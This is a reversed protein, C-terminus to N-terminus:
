SLIYSKKIRCYKINYGQQRLQNIMRRVTKESINLRHALEAPSGTGSHHILDLVYSLRESYEIYTM